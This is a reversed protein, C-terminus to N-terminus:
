LLYTPIDCILNSKVRSMDPAPILTHEQQPAPQKEKTTRGTAKGRSSGTSSKVTKNEMKKDDLKKEEAKKGAARQLSSKGVSM